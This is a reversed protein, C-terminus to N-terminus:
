HLTRLRSLPVVEDDYDTDEYTVLCGKTNARKVTGPYWVGDEEAIVKTGVRCSALPTGPGDASWPLLEGRAVDEDQEAEYGDFRISCTGSSSGAGRVKGPYWAGESLAFFHTGTVCEGVRGPAPDPTARSAQTIPKTAENAAAAAAPPVAAPSPAAAAAPEPSDTFRAGPFLSAIWARAGAVRAFWSHDGYKADGDGSVNVGVIVWEGGIQTWASGGSDGAGLLGALRSVPRRAGGAPNAISGDERPLFVTLYNGADECTEAGPSNPVSEDVVGEAAAKDTGKNYKEDEGVSAIGRTGYGVFTITRRREDSGGYLLPQPGSDGIPRRLRVLALDVGTCDDGDKAYKPHIWVREGRLLTGKATRFVLDGLSTDDFNHAATLVYGYRDDNGIWTGSGVGDESGDAADLALVARFQPQNALAVHAGFGDAEQGPKGGEERWTSDLIVVAPAPCPAAVLAALLLLFGMIAARM